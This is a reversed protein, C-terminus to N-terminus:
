LDRKLKSNDYNNKHNGIFTDPKLSELYLRQPSQSSVFEEAEQTFGQVSAIVLNDVGPIYYTRFFAQTEELTLPHDQQAFMLGKLKSQDITILPNKILFNLLGHQYSCVKMGFVSKATFMLRNSKEIEMGWRKKHIFVGDDFFPRCHGFYVWDYGKEKAWTITFYYCAALAGEEVYDIRGEKVGLYRASAAKNNMEVLYGSICENGQNVLLLVGKEFIKALEHFGGVLSLEGYRVAAYPLYMHHYFYELKPLDQTVEFTYEYKKMNKRLNERLRKSMRGTPVPQTLDLKFMVWEPLVMFGQRSLFRSFFQDIGVLVLDAGQSDSKKMHSKLKGMFVKGLKKKTPRDAYLLSLIYPLMGRGEGFLITTLNGDGWKSKGQFQYVPSRLQSAIALIRKVTFYAPELVPNICARVRIPLCDYMRSLLRRFKFFAM